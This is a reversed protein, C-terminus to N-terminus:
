RRTLRRTKPGNEKHKDAKEKETRAAREKLLTAIGQQHGSCKLGFAPVYSSPKNRAKTEISHLKKILCYVPTQFFAKEKKGFIHISYYIQLLLDYTGTRVDVGSALHLLSYSHCAEEQFLLAIPKGGLKVTTFNLIDSSLTIEESVEVKGKGKNLVQLIDRMDQGDLHAQSSLCIIPGGLSVLEKMNSKGNGKEMLRICEPGILVRKRKICFELIAEREEDGISEDVIIEEQCGGPPYEDNLLVLREYVKKWRDVQGRPRSIELYMLMRLFDPDAYLIGNVSKARKQLIKFLSIHLDTCDAVPIFNILIKSTGDHVSLKKNVDEFGAQRLEQILEETDEKFNPSFFDYDPISYREDYFQREKSLLANIAQGGYCVRRKKRIFREVIEIARQVESDNASTYDIRRKADEVTKDLMAFQRKIPEKELIPSRIEQREIDM